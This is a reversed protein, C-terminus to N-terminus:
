AVGRTLRHALRRMSAHEAIRHVQDDTLHAAKLRRPEGGEALLLGVGQDDPTIAAATHERSAWGHGLVIDSSTDTTCRFAWRYGFLDRLSTPIIDSSPRQTAAVVIIGAARGRAVLDRVAVAFAERTQKTGVTASYYALEDIVVVIPRVGHQEADDPTIKRRGEADLLDYRCDMEAALEALAGLAHDLDNGVFREACSRWLGLEVLKGDFLWLDADLSLATHAVVDNLGVSKGAGPEGAILLNRYVLTISVQHGYEDVGLHIPAWISPGTDETQDAPRARDVSAAQLHAVLRALHRLPRTPESM